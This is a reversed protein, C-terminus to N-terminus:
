RLGNFRIGGKVSTCKNGTANCDGPGDARNCACVTYEGSPNNILGSAGPHEKCIASFVADRTLPASTGLLPIPRDVNRPNFTSSITGSGIPSGGDRGTNCTASLEYGITIFDIASEPDIARATIGAPDGPINIARSRDIPEPTPTGDDEYVSGKAVIEITPPSTDDRDIVIPTSRPGVVICSSLLFVSLFAACVFQKHM